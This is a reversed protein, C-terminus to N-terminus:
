EHNAVARSPEGRAGNGAGSDGYQPIFQSANSPQNRASEYAAHRHEEAETYPSALSTLVVVRASTQPLNTDETNDM